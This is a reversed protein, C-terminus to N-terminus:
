TEKFKCYWQKTDGTKGKTGKKHAFSAPNHGYVDSFDLQSFVTFFNLVIIKDINIYTKVSKELIDIDHWNSTCYKTTYVDYIM